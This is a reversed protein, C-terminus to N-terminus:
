LRFFMSLDSLFNINQWLNQFNQTLYMFKQSFHWRHPHIVACIGKYIIPYKCKAQFKWLRVSFILKRLSKDIKKRNQKQEMFTQIDGEFRAYDCGFGNIIVAFYKAFCLFINKKPPTSDPEVWRWIRVWMYATPRFLWRWHAWGTGTM